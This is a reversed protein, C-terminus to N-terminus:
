RTDRRKSPAFLIHGAGVLAWHRWTEAIKMPIAAAKIAELPHGILDRVQKAHFEMIEAVLFVLALRRMEEPAKLCLDLFLASRREQGCPQWDIRYDDGEPAVIFGGISPFGAQLGKFLSM